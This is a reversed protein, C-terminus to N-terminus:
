ENTLNKRIEERLEPTDEHGHDHVAHYVALPVVESEKGAITVTCNKESPMKRCDAVKRPEDM